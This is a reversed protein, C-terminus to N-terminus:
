CVDKLQFIQIGKKGLMFLASSGTSPHGLAKSFLIVFCGVPLSPEHAGAIREDLCKNPM